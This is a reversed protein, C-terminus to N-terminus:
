ITVIIFDLLYFYKIFYINAKILSYNELNSVTSCSNIICLFLMM